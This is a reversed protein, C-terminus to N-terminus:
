GIDAFAFGQAECLEHSAHDTRDASQQYRRQHEEDGALVSLVIVLRV